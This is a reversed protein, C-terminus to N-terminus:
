YTFFLKMLCSAKTRGCCRHSTSHQRSAMGFRAASSTKAGRPFGYCVRPPLLFGHTYKWAGSLKVATCISLTCVGPFIVTQFRHNHNHAQPRSMLTHAHPQRHGDGARPCTGANRATGQASRAFPPACCSTGDPAGRGAGRQARSLGRGPTVAARRAALSLSFFLLDRAFCSFSFMAHAQENRRFAHTPRLQDERHARVLVQDALWGM